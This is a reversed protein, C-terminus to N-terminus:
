PVYSFVMRQIFANGAGGADVLPVISTRAALAAVQERSAPDTLFFAAGDLSLNGAVHTRGALGPPIFGLTELDNPFVAAGFAGALYVSALHATSLGAAALLTSVALNCAAKVKLLEEVDSAPM